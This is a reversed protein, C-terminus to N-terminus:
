SAVKAARHFNNHSLIRHNWHKLIEKGTDDVDKYTKEGRKARRFFASHNKSATRHQRKDPHQANCRSRIECELEKRIKRNMIKIHVCQTPYKGNDKTKEANDASDITAMVFARQLCEARHGIDAGRYTDNQCM